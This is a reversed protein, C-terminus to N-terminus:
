QRPTILDLSSKQKPLDYYIGSLNRKFEETVKRADYKNEVVRPTILVILEDKVKNKGTSSFLSGLFPIDKLLPIGEKSANDEESILGGLVVTEGSAVAVSSTIQRGLITPTATNQGASVNDVKQDIDMIVVGNANVRPTVKLTVGTDIQQTNSIPISGTLASTGVSSVGSQFPVKDGVHITAEHNNLVMLSPSSLVSINKDQALMNLMMKAGSPNDLFAYSFGGTAGAAAASALESFTSSLASATSGFQGAGRSGNTDLNQFFWKVGYQLNDTLKVSVITADILVQLPLVDLQQIIKKVLRYQQPKASIVLANNAEDAIVQVGALENESNAQGANPTSKKTVQTPTTPKNTLTSTQNGPAVSPSTKTKTSSTSSTGGFISTLTEALETAVVHQVRYVVVGGEAAATSPKDLRAVWAKAEALYDGQQTVLLVANLHKIPIFKAMGALPTKEEKGFIQELQPVIDGADVNELPYLGFSMGSMYNVDFTKIIELIREVETSSGTVMLINRAPDSRVVAKDPVLPTLIDMMDQAGVYQLPVIKTQYGPVLKGAKGIMPIGSAQMAKASPEIRYIGNNKVLAVDNMRLLTELTPLLEAKTLPQTTQLTVKGAVTPNLVYNEGLMDSLIIKAVEGLDADDFNLSYKGDSAKDTAHTNIDGNVFRGTGKHQEIKLKERTKIEDENKLQTFQVENAEKGKANKPPPETAMAKIPLKIGTDPGLLECGSVLLSCAAIAGPLMRTKFIKKM